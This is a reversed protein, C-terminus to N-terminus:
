AVAKKKAIAFAEPRATVLDYDANLIFNVVNSKADTYPDIILDMEGFQGIASYSFVGFGLTEADMYNSVLVPYGNIMGDKCIMEASGKEKPTTKLAGYVRPTCVYAATGDTVDAGKDMVATELSVVDAFTLAADYEVDASAKVFCGDTAGALKTGSLLWKNLLRSVAKSLQTLVINQLDYNTQKIATRSVPISVSVRKPSAKVKGINLNSDGITATEGAISAEVAQLTPFIFEGTLGSQMKVGLKDLILGKELPEIVEGVSVPVAADGSSIATVESRNVVKIGNESVIGKYDSLSRHNVVDDVAKAFIAAGSMGGIFNPENDLSRKEARMQLLAKENKLADFEKQETETLARKEVEAKDLMSRMQEKIESIREYDKRM